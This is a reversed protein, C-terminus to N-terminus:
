IEENKYTKIWIWFVGQIRIRNRIRIRFVSKTRLSWRQRQCSQLATHTLELDAMLEPTNLAHSIEAAM